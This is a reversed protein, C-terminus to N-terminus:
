KKEARFAAPSHDQPGMISLILDFRRRAEARLSADMRPPVGWQAICLSAAANGMAGIEELSCGRCYGVLAAGSSSNGGGTADAVPLNPVSPVFVQRGNQLLIVGRRGLRLYILPVPWAALQELCDQLRDAGLLTRAEAENLSLIEVQAAIAQVNDLRGPAAADASIEWLLSFGHARKLALMERWYARDDDRFVYMGSCGGCFRAVDGPAAEMLHYHAAGFRPTEVRTGDPAYRVETRPTRPHRILLGDMPLSNRRYWAGLRAFYDAGVGTVIRLHDEWVKMGAMAYFGAGGPAEVADSHGPRTIVDLVATSQIIFEM